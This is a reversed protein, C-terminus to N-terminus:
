VAQRRLATMGVIAGWKNLALHRLHLNIPYQTTSSQNASHLASPHNMPIAMNASPQLQPWAAPPTLLCFAACHGQRQTQSGRSNKKVNKKKIWPFYLTAVYEQQVGDQKVSERNCVNVSLHHWAYFMKKQKYSGVLEVPAASLTLHRALPCM